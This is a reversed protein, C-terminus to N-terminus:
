SSMGAERLVQKVIDSVSKDQFIRSSHRHSFLWLRPVLEATYLTFRGINGGYEFRSVMGHVYRRGQLSLITLVAPQGVVKPFDIESDESALELTFQFLESLSECGSFRAVRLKQPLGEVEFTFQPVNSPLSDM